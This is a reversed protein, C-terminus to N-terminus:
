EERVHTAGKTYKYIKRWTARYSTLAYNTDSFKRGFEYENDAEDSCFVRAPNFGRDTAYGYHCELYGIAWCNDCHKLVTKKSLGRDYLEDIFEFVYKGLDRAYRYSQDNWHWEAIFRELEDEEEDTM